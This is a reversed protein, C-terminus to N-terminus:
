GAGFLIGGLLVMAFNQALGYSVFGLTGIFGGILMMKRIGIRAYIKGFLFMSILGNTIGTITSSGLNFQTRTIDLTNVMPDAFLSITNGTVGTWVACMLCMAVLAM